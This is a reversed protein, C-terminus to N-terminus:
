KIYETLEIAQGVKSVAIKTFPVTTALSVSTLIAHEVSSFVYREVVSGLLHRYM